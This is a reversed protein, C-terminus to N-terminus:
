FVVRLGAEGTQTNWNGAVHATYTIFLSWDNKGASLGASLLADSRDLSTHPTTFSAGDAAFMTAPAGNTGAEVEYGIQADPTVQVGSATVFSRSAGVLVYPQVSTYPGTRGSVAFAAALGRASEAFHAGGVSAIRVGAAPALKFGRLTLTTGAQLGGSFISVSSNEHLDGIGSPRSSSDAANGYGIVGALTFAGLPQAAYLAVRTTGMTGGGGAKDSLTTDDYGVAIGLRTRAMGIGKDIGALFGATNANYSPAGGSAGTHGLSGTAEIWGGAGCFASALASAIRGSSSTGGPSTAAPSLPAEAACSAGEGGGAGEVAKDLLAGNDQQASGALAQMQASFVAGDPPAVVVAPIVVAITAPASAVSGSSAVSDGSAVTPSSSVTPTSSITVPPAIVFTGNLVLNASPDAVYNTTALGSPIEGYGVSSFSGTIGDTATLYEYTHPAYTGPALVYDVGGALSASGTVAFESSEAPTVAVLLTGSSDQIFDGTLNLPTGIIGGQFTGDNTVSAITWDGTGAWDSDTVIDLGSGTGFNAIGAALTGTGDLVIQSATTGGDITGDIVSGTTLTLTDVGGFGVAVGGDTSAITGANVLTTGSGAITVGITGAITGTNYIEDITGFDAIGYISGSIVGSNTLAVITGSNYIASNESALTGSNTFSGITGGNFVPNYIAAIVGSNTLTSLQGDNFLGYDTANVLGANDLTGITGSNYVVYDGSFLGTNVLATLQANSDNEVAYEGSITGANNLLGTTGENDFGSSAGHITGGAENMLTGITGYNNYIGEGSSVGYILGSNDILGITGGSNYIGEADAFITGQPQNTLLGIFGYDNVIGGYFDGAASGTGSIVGDNTLVNIANEYNYIGTNQGTVLGTNTLTGIPAEYNAIGYAGGSAITGNNTLQGISGLNFIATGASSIIGQSENTLVDISAGNRNTMGQYAGTMLGDNTLTGLAANNFLAWGYPDSITGGAENILATVTGSYYTIAVDGTSHITGSNVLTGIEGANYVATQNSSITGTNDFVSITGGGVYIDYETSLLGNNNFTGVDGLVQIGYSNGQITGGEANTLVGVTGSVDIGYNVGTNITGQSSITPTITAVNIGPNGTLVVNPDIYLSQGTANVTSSTSASITQAGAPAAGAVLGWAILSVSGLLYKKRSFTSSNNTFKGQRV